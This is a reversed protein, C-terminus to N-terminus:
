YIWVLQVCYVLLKLQDVVLFLVINFINLLFAHFLVYGMKYGWLLFYTMSKYNSTGNIIELSADYMTKFDLIIPKDILLVYMFRLIFSLSLLIIIFKNQKILNKM